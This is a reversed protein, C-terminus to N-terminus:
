FYERVRQLAAVLRDVDAPTNYVGFSARVTAPVAYVGMLPQACHHGVRVAVGEMDLITGVDHPHVGEMVFSVIASKNPASGIFRIGSVADLQTMAYNLIAHEHSVVYDWGIERIFDIAAGLGIIETFPPTGAEFKAPLPAFTTREFQVTEIMDGGFQYPPLQDMLDYRGILVGVGTPGYMKHSSFCYVDCGIEQVDVPTHAIGQAGDVVVIAGVAKALRTMEAIPNVTGLVNSIHPFSVLKTNDNILARYGDLDVQGDPLIPAVRLVVGMSEAVQQWPVINAHHEMQTILIEDGAKIKSKSVVTAILNLAGTTGSTFIVEEPRRANVFQAISRRVAECFETSEQSMLYVGRHVTAYEDTLFRTIRDIVSQPKQTTAGNDLYVLPRDHVRRRLVPFQNRIRETTEFIRM